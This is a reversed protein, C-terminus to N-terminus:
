LLGGIDIELDTGVFQGNKLKELNTRICSEQPICYVDKSNKVKFTYEVNTDKIDFTLVIHNFCENYFERQKHTEITLVYYDKLIKLEEKTQESIDIVDISGAGFYIQGFQYKKSITKIKELIDISLVNSEVFLTLIGKYRGELEKGVWFRM